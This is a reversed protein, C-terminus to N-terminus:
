QIEESQQTGRYDITREGKRLNCPQCLLQLNRPHTEGGLAVPEVHDLQLNDVSGCAACKFGDRRGIAIFLADFDKVAAAREYRKTTKGKEKREVHALLDSVLKIAKKIAGSPDLGPYDVYASMYSQAFLAHNLHDRYNKFVEKRYGLLDAALTLAYVAEADKTLSRVWQGIQEDSLGEIREIPVIVHAHTEKVFPPDKALGSSVYWLTRNPMRRPWTVIPKGKGFYESVTGAELDELGWEESM